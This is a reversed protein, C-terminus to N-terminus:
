MWGHMSDYRFTMENTDYGKFWKAHSDSFLINQGLKHTQWAMARVGNVEGGVCNQTYDDKDADTPDFDITDGSTVFASPFQILRQDVSCVNSKNVVFAARVGNFYSWSSAADTPCHYVNTNSTYAVLQQMWSHNHTTSDTGDWVIKNGSEPYLNEHEDAYMGMSIGIQHLNSICKITQGRQKAASLAPLLLGAL